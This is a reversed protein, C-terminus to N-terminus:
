SSSQKCCPVALAIQYSYTYKVFYYDQRFLWCCQSVSQQVLLKIYQQLLSLLSDISCSQVYPFEVVPKSASFLVSLSRLLYCQLQDLGVSHSELVVSLWGVRWDLAWVCLRFGFWIFSSSNLSYMFLLHMLFQMYNKTHTM